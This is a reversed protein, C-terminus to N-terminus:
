TLLVLPLGVSASSVLIVAIIEAMKRAGATWTVGVYAILEGVTILVIGIRGANSPISLGFKNTVITIAGIVVVFVFAPRIRFPTHLETAPPDRSRIRVWLLGTVTVSVCAMAAFPLWLSLALSPKVIGVVVFNRPFPMTVAIAAAFAYVRAYAPYRRAQEVLSTVTLGPSVCGGLAGTVGIAATPDIV